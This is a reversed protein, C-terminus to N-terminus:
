AMTLGNTLCKVLKVNQTCKHPMKCNKNCIEETKQQSNIISQWLQKKFTFDAIGANSSEGFSPQISTGSSQGSAM